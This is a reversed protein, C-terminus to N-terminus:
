MNYKIIELIDKIEENNLELITENPSKPGKFWPQLNVMVTYVDDISVIQHFCTPSNINFVSDKGLISSSLINERLYKNEQENNVDLEKQHYSTNFSINHIIEGKLIKMEKYWPHNHFYIPKDENFIFKSFSFRCNDLMFSIRHEIPNVWDIKYTKVENNSKAKLYALFLQSTSYKEETLIM